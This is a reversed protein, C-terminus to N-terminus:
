DEDWREGAYSPDFWAPPTASLAESEISNEFREWRRDAHFQCRPFSRDGHPPAPQMTVPGECEESQELCSLEEEVAAM